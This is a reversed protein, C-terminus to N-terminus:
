PNQPQPDATTLKPVLSLVFQKVVTTRQNEQFVTQLKGQLQQLNLGDQPSFSAEQEQFYAILSLGAVKTLYAASVGQIAGGALYTLANSKLIGAIAQTSLEVLGLQAMLKGLTTAATQAQSLTFKQHYIAGLDMLMQGNIAATALLDLSAVPNAIAATAALWQYQEIIPLAQTRRAQNLLTKAEQKVGQIARWQIGLALTEQEQERITQLQPLLQHLQPEPQEFFETVTGDTQHQRVKITQPQAAIAQFDAHPLAQHIRKELAQVVLARETAEFQDQKNLLIFLRHHQHHLHHLTQWQTETLDGTILFLVLDMPALSQTLPGQPGDILTSDIEELAIAPFDSHPLAQTLHHALTTKGTRKGGVLACRWEPRDSVTPIAHLKERLTELASPEVEPAMATLLSDVNKRTQAVEEPTLPTITPTLVLPSRSKKFLLWLSAGAGVTLWLGFESLHTFSKELSQGLWLLVSLGLGVMLIPKRLTLAM